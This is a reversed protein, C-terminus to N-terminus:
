ATCAAMAQLAERNADSVGMTALGHGGNVAPQPDKVFQWDGSRELTCAHGGRRCTSASV